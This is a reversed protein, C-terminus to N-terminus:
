LLVNYRYWSNAYGPVAQDDMKAHRGASVAFDEFFQKPYYCHPPKLAAGAARRAEECAERKSADPVDMILIPASPRVVRVMERLVATAYATDPFYLFVGYSFAADFAADPFPLAAAACVHFDMEPLVARAIEIHPASYDVGTFAKRGYHWCSLYACRRRRWGM